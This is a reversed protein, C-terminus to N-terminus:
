WGIMNVTGRLIQFLIEILPTSVFKIITEGANLNSIQYAVNYVLLATAFLALVRINKGYLENQEIAQILIVPSFLVVIAEFRWFAGTKISLCGLAFVAIYFLYSVMPKKFLSEEQKVKKGPQKKLVILLIMVIFITGFVKVIKDSVSSEVQTAWGGSTWHLYYYAKNIVNNIIDGIPGTLTGVIYQYSLDIITPLLFVISLAIWKTKELNKFLASLLRVVVLVISSSHLGIPLVYLLLTLINRKKQVADRYIAFSVLVYSLVCRTNLIITYPSLVGIAIVALWFVEGFTFDRKSRDIMDFLVYFVITYILFGVIFPLIYDNESRNVFFFLIDRIFLGDTNNALLSILSSDGISDVQKFYSLLDNTESFFRMSYGFTGFVAGFPMALPKLSKTVKVKYNKLCYSLAVLVLLVPSLLALMWMM